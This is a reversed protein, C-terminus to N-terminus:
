EDGSRTEGTTKPRAGRCLEAYYTPSHRKVAWLVGPPVVILFPRGMVALTAIGITLPMADWLKSPTPPRVERACFV